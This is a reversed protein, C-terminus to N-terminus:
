GEPEDEVLAERADDAAQRNPFQDIVRQWTQRALDDQGNAEYTSALVALADPEFQGWALDSVLAQAESVLAARRDRVLRNRERRDMPAPSHPDDPDFRDSPRSVRLNLSRVRAGQLYVSRPFAAVIQRSDDDSLPPADDPSTLDLYFQVGREPLNRLRRYTELEADSPQSVVVTSVNSRVIGLTEDRYEVVIRFTGAAPFLVDGIAEDFSLVFEQRRGDPVLTGVASREGTSYLVRRRFRTFGSGRDVLIRLHADDVGLGEWGEDYIAATGHQTITVVVPEGILYGPKATELRFAPSSAHADAGALAAVAALSLMVRATRRVHGTHLLGLRDRRSPPV